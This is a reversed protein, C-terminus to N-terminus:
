ALQEANHPASLRPSQSRTPGCLPRRLEGLDVASRSASSPQSIEGHRRNARATVRVIRSTPRAPDLDM